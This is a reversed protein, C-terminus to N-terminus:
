PKVRRDRDSPIPVGIGAVEIEGLWRSAEPNLFGKKLAVFTVTRDARVAIGLPKGTDCDLGSPVDVALVRAPSENIARIADEFPSRVNSTLGTGLLADVIWTVRDLRSRMVRLEDPRSLARIPIQLNAAVKANIEADGSLKDMPVLSLVEVEIGANALHRAIVYGDGGNNGGGAVVCVPGSPDSRLLSEAAGRGANEMLVISPLGLKGIAWRDVSRVEDRSLALGSYQYQKREDTV